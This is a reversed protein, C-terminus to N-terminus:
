NIMQDVLVSCLVSGLATPEPVTPDATSPRVAGASFPYLLVLDLM